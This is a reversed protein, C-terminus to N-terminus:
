NFEAENIMNDDVYEELANTSVNELVSPLETEYSVTSFLAENDFDDVHNQLFEEIEQDSLAAMQRDIGAPSANNSVLLWGGVAVVAAVSAAILWRKLNGTRRPMSIVKTESDTMGALDPRLQGFYGPPAEFPTRKPMGALFPSLEELEEQVATAGLRQMIMGPLADFYGEPVRYDPHGPVPMGPAIERLEDAIDKGKKM